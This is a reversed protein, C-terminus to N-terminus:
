RAIPRCSAYFAAFAKAHDDGTWGDLDGWSLPELAANPIKLPGSPQEVIPADNPTPAAATAPSEPPRVASPWYRRAQTGETGDVIALAVPLFLLVGPLPRRMPEVM